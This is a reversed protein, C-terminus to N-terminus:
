SVTAYKPYDNPSSCSYSMGSSISNAVFVYYKDTDQRVQRILSISNDTSQEVICAGNMMADYIEQWTKDMVLYGNDESIHIITVGGANAIGQEIRNLHASTVTDGASWTKAEYSM